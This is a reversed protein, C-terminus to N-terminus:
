LRARQRRTQFLIYVFMSAGILSTVVGIPLEVPSIVTRAALDCLLLFAAGVFASAALLRRHNPGFVMRAMHPIILGVFGITGGIAVAVGILCAVCLLVVLKVRRVNVGIHLANDEGIAFANLERGLSLLVGGAVLLTGLLLLAETYTSGSLSGMTWFTISKIKDSFFAILITAASNAFMTFVVGVLIITNTSLTRDLALSLGLILLLSLFAFVVAFLVIGGQALGPLSIGLAIASVAGLSAGSSVGMTTGDALPNRLLGQMAAGSLSLTAGSLAVCLVRPIRVQLLIAASAGAAQDQGFLAGRLIRLTEPLPIVVSGLCICLLLAALLLGSLYLYHRWHFAEQRM